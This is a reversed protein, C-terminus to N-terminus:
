NSGINVTRLRWLFLCKNVRVRCILFESEFDLSSFSLLSEKLFLHSKLKKTFSDIPSSSSIDVPSEKLYGHAYIHGLVQMLQIHANVVPFVLRTNSFSSRFRPVPFKLICGSSTFHIQHLCTEGCYLIHNCFSSEFAHTISAQGEHSDSGYHLRSINKGYHM